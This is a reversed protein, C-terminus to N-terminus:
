HLILSLIVVTMWPEYYYYFLSPPVTLILTLIISTIMSKKVYNDQAIHDLDVLSKYSFITLAASSVISIQQGFDEITKNTWCLIKDPPSFTDLIFSIETILNGICILFLFKMVNTKKPMRCIDIIMWMGFGISLAFLLACFRYILIFLWDM